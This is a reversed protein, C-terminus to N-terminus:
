PQLLAGIAERLSWAAGVIAAGIALWTARDKWLDPDV